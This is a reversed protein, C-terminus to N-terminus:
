KKTELYKNKERHYKFVIKEHPKTEGAHTYSVELPYFDDQNALVRLISTTESGMEPRDAYFSLTSGGASAFSLIQVKGIDPLLVVYWVSEEQGGAGSYSTLMYSGILNRGFPQLNKVLQSKFDYRLHGNGSPIDNQDRAANILQFHGNQKKYILLDLENQCARCSQIFGDYIEVKEVIVLYRIEGQINKYEITPHIFGLTNTELQRSPYEAFYEDIERPEVYAMPETLTKPYASKMITDIDLTNLVSQDVKKSFVSPTLASKAHDLIPTINQCASLLLSSTLISFSLVNLKKM